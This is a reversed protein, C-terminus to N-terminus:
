SCMSGVHAAICSGPHKRPPQCASVAHQLYFSFSHAFAGSVRFVCHIYASGLYPHQFLMSKTTASCSCVAYMYLGIKPRHRGVVYQMFYSVSRELAEELPFLSRQSIVALTSTVSDDLRQRFSYKAPRVGARFFTSVSHLTFLLSCHNASRIFDCKIGM